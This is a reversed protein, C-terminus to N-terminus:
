RFAELNQSNVFILFRRGAEVDLEDVAVVDKITM